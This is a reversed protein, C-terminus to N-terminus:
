TSRDPLTEGDIWEPDIMLVRPENSLGCQHHRIQQDLLELAALISKV